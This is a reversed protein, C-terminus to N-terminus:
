PEGYSNTPDTRRRGDDTQAATGISLELKKSESRHNTIANLHQDNKLTPGSSEHTDRAHKTPAHAGPDRGQGGPKTQALANNQMHKALTRHIRGIALAAKFRHSDSGGGLRRILRLSTKYTYIYIYIYHMYSILCLM